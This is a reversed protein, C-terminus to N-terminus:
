LGDHRCRYVHDVGSDRQVGVLATDVHAGTVTPYQFWVGTAVIMVIAMVAFLQEM